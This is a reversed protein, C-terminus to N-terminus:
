LVASPSYSDQTGIPGDGRYGVGSLFSDQLLEHCLKAPRYSAQYNMQGVLKKGM